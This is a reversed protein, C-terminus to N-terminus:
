GAGLLASAPPTGAGSGSAPWLLGVEAFGAALVGKEKSRFAATAVVDYTSDVHSSQLVGPSVELRYRYAADIRPEEVPVGRPTDPLRLPSGPGLPKFLVDLEWEDGELSRVDGEFSWELVVSWPEGIRILSPRDIGDADVLHAQLQIRPRETGDTTAGAESTRVPSAEFRSSGQTDELRQTMWGCLATCDIGMWVQNRDHELHHVSTRWATSAGESTRTQFEVVFSTVPTWEGVDHTRRQEPPETTLADRAASSSTRRRAEEAWAEIAPRSVPARGKGESEREIEDATLAALDRITEVGFTQRLWRARTPGIGTIQTLDNTGV